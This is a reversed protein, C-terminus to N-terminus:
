SMVILFTADGIKKALAPAPPVRWDPFYSMASPAHILPTSGSSEVCYMHSWHGGFPCFLTRKQSGRNSAASPMASDDNSRPTRLRAYEVTCFIMASFSGLMM